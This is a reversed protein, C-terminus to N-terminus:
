SEPVSMLQMVWRKWDETMEESIVDRGGLFLSIHNGSIIVIEVSFLSINYEKERFFCWEVICHM